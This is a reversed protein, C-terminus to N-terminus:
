KAYTIQNGFQKAISLMENWADRLGSNKMGANRIPLYYTEDKSTNSALTGRVLASAFDNYVDGTIAVTTDKILFRLRLTSGKVSKDNTAVFGLEKDKEKLTYGREYLLLCVKNFLSTDPNSVIIKTDNKTQAFCISPVLFLFIYIYKM